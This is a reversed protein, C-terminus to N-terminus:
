NDNQGKEEAKKGLELIMNAAASCRADHPTLRPDGTISMEFDPCKLRGEGVHMGDVLSPVVTYRPAMWGCDYCIEALEMCKDRQSLAEKLNLGMKNTSKTKGDDGSFTLNAVKMINSSPEKYKEMISLVETTMKEETKLKQIDMDCQASGEQLIFEKRLISDRIKRIELVSDRFQDNSNEAVGGRNSCRPSCEHIYITKTKRERWGSPSYNTRGNGGSNNKKTNTSDIQITPSEGDPGEAYVADTARSAEFNRKRNKELRSARSKQVKHSSKAGITQKSQKPISVNKTPKKKFTSNMDQVEVNGDSPWERNLLELLIEKYPLIHYYEVVSTTKAFPANVCVPGTMSSILEELSMEVLNGKMTQVYELIFVKTTTREKSLSYALKEDLVRFNSREMGTRHEVESFALKQFMYPGALASNGAEADIEKEITSSIGETNASCEMLCRKRTPDLLLVAVKSIPWLAMDPSDKSADLGQAIECAQMAARDFISSSVHKGSKNQQKHYHTLIDEGIFHSACVLFLKADAFALYPFMMRHYYNYLIIATHIQQAVATQKEPAMYRRELGQPLAPKVLREVLLGVAEEM